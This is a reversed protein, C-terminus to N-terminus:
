GKQRIAQRLLKQMRKMEDLQHAIEAESLNATMNALTIQKEYREELKVIRFDLKILREDMRQALEDRKTRLERIIETPPRRSRKVPVTKPTPRRSVSPNKTM